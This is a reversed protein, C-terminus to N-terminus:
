RDAGADALIEVVGWRARVDARCANIAANSPRFRHVCRVHEAKYAVEAAVEMDSAPPSSAAGCALVDAQVVLTAFLVRANM